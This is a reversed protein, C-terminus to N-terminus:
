LRETLFDVMNKVIGLQRNKINEDSLEVGFKEEITTIYNMFELSDFLKDGILASEESVTFKEAQLSLIIEKLELFVKERKM